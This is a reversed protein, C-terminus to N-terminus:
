PPFYVLIIKLYVGGDKNIHLNDGSEFLFRNDRRAFIKDVRGPGLCGTM